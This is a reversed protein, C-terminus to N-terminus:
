TRTSTKNTTETTDWTGRTGEPIAPYIRLSAQFDQIVAMVQKIVWSHRLTEEPYEEKPDRTLQFLKPLTLKNSRFLM